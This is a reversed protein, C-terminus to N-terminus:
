IGGEEGEPAYQIGTFLQYMILSAAYIDMSSEPKQGLLVEPATYFV